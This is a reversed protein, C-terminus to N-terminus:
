LNDAACVVMITNLTLSYLLYCSDLCVDFGSTNSLSSLTVDVVVVVFM